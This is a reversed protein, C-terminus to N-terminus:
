SGVWMSLALGRSPRFKCLIVRLNVCLITFIILPQKHFDSLHNALLTLFGNQAFKGGLRYVLDWDGHSVLNLFFITQFTNTMFNQIFHPTRQSFKVLPQSTIRFVWKKGNAGFRRALGWGGQHRFKCVLFNDLTPQLM